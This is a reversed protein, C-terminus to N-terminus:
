VTRMLGAVLWVTVEIVPKKSSICTFPISTLNAFLCDVEKPSVVEFFRYDTRSNVFALVPSWNTKIPKSVTEVSSM